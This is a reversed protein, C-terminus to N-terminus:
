FRHGDLEVGHPVVFALGEKADKPVTFSLSYKGGGEDETKIGKLVADSGSMVDILPAKKLPVEFDLLLRVPGAKLVPRGSLVPTDGKVQLKFRPSTRTVVLKVSEPLIYEPGDGECEIKPEIYKQIITWDKGGSLDVDIKVPAGVSVFDEGEFTVKRLNPKSIVLKCRPSSLIRNRPNGEQDLVQIM